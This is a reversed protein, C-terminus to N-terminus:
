SGIFEPPRHERVAAVGEQLDFSEAHDVVMAAEADLAADFPLNPLDMMARRGLRVALPSRGALVQALSISADLLDEPPATRTILGVELARTADMTEDLMTLEIARSPGLLRPLMVSGALDPFIGVRAFGLTFRAATSAIRADCLAALSVGTAVCSGNIAAILAFPADRIQRVVGYGLRAREIRMARDAGSFFPDTVDAGACFTKGAGTLILARVSGDQSLGLLVDSLEEFMTGNMSNSAAPRNLTLIGVRERRELIITEYETTSV